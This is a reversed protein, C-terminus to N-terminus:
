KAQADHVRKPIQVPGSELLLCGSDQELHKLCQNGNQSREQLHKIEHAPDAIMTASEITVYM